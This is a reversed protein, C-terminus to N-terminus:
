LFNYSRKSDTSLYSLLPAIIESYFNSAQSIMRGAAQWCSMVVM